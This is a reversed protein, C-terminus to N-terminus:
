ESTSSEERTNGASDNQSNENQNLNLLKLTFAQLLQATSNIIQENQFLAGVGQPEDDTESLIDLDNELQTIVEDRQKIIEKLEEVQTKLYRNEAEALAFNKYVDLDMTKNEIPQPKINECEKKTITENLVVTKSTNNPKAQLVYNNPKNKLLNIIEVTKRDFQKPLTWGVIKLDDCFVALSKNGTLQCNSFFDTATM